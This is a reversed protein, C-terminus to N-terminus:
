GEQNQRPSAEVYGTHLGLENLRRLAKATKEPSIWRHEGRVLEGAVYGLYQLNFVVSHSNGLARDKSLQQAECWLQTLDVLLDGLWFHEADIPRLEVLKCHPCNEGHLKPKGCRGCPYSRDDKDM